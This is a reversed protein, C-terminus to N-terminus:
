ARRPPRRRHRRPAVPRDSGGPGRDPDGVVRAPTRGPHRAPIRRLHGRVRPPRGAGPRRACLARGAHGAQAGPPAGGGARPQAGQVTTALGLLGTWAWQYRGAIRRQLLPAAVLAAPFLFLLASGLEGSVACAAFAAGLALSGAWRQATLLTTGRLARAIVPDG